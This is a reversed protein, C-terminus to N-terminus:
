FYMIGFLYNEGRFVIELILFDRNDVKSVEKEGWREIEVRRDRERVCVFM